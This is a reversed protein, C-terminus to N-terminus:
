GVAGFAASTRLEVNFRRPARSGDDRDYRIQAALDAITRLTTPTPQLNSIHGSGLQNGIAEGHWTLQHGFPKAQLGEARLVVLSVVSGPRAANFM